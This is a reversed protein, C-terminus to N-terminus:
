LLSKLQKIFQQGNDVRPDVEVNIVHGKKDVIYLSPYALVKYGNITSEGSNAQGANLNLVSSNAYVGENISNKWKSLNKDVSISIFKVGANTLSKEINKLYPALVRCGPCGTFWFDLVVVKGKFDSLSVEKGESDPLKFDYAKRGNAISNAFEMVIDRLDKEKITYAFSRLPIFANGSLDHSKMLFHILLRERLGAPFNGQVYKVFEAAIFRKGTYDCSDLKYRSVLFDLGDDSIYGLTNFNDFRRKLKNQYCTKVVSDTALGGGLFNFIYMSSILPDSEVEDQLIRYDSDNVTPKQAELTQKQLFYISDFKAIFAAFYQPSMHAPM